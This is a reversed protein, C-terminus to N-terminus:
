QLTSLVTSIDVDQEKDDVVIDDSSTAMVLLLRRATGTQRAWM